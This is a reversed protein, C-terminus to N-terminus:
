ISLWLLRQTARQRQAYREKAEVEQCLLPDKAMVKPLQASQEPEGEEDSGELYVRLFGDFTVVEGKAEFRQQSSSLIHITTHELIAESMQSALTRKRIMDYLAKEQKNSGASELHMNTPRIAEHAEQAGKSKTHYTRAQVYEKGYEAEIVSCAWAIAEDSLNLSDTRM